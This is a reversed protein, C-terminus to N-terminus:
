HSGLDFFLTVMRIQLDRLLLMNRNQHPLNWWFRFLASGGLGVVIVAVVVVVVVVVAVVVV